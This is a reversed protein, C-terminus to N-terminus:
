KEKTESEMIAGCNACFNGKELSEYGCNTCKEIDAYLEDSLMTQKWHAKPREELEDLMSKINHLVSLLYRVATTKREGASNEIAKNIKEKIEVVTM